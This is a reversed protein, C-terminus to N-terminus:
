AREEKMVFGLGRVTKLLKNDFPGDVKRRLRAIHVDIVNDLPTSRDKVQWVDRSLMERSVISGQNRLLYELLEFERVTLEIQESGRTVKRTVLDMELDALVLRLLQEKRGRRLILRIRALLEPFAFPKVLYDDAGSDLGLVRDEVTDRATLILVPTEIGRKRLTALIEIGDRGPLMLDLLVLDFIGANLQFFGDEGTHALTVLYSEAELGKRLAEAVKKEDEIVLIHM